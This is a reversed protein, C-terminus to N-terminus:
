LFATSPTIKRVSTIVFLHSWDCPGRRPTGYYRWLAGIGWLVGHYVSKYEIKYRGVKIRLSMLKAALLCGDYVDQSFMLTIDSLIGAGAFVHGARCIKRRFVAM